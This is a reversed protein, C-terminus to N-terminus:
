NRNGQSYLQWLNQDTTQYKCFNLEVKLAIASILMRHFNLLCQIYYTDYQYAYADYTLLDLM